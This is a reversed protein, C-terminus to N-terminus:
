YNKKKDKPQGPRAVGRQELTTLQERLLLLERELGKIEERLERVTGQQEQIRDRWTDSMSKNNIQADKIGKV